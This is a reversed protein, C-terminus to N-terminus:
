RPTTWQLSNLQEKLEEAGSPTLAHIQRPNVPAKQDKVQRTQYHRSDSDARRGTFNSQRFGPTITRAKELTPSTPQGSLHADKTAAQKDSIMKDPVIKGSQAADGGSWMKMPVMQLNVDGSPYIKDNASADFERIPNALGALVSSSLTAIAIGIFLGLKM